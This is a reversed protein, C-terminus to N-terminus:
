KFILIYNKLFTVSNNFIYLTQIYYFVGGGCVCVRIQTAEVQWSLQFYVPNSSKLCNGAERNSISTGQPGYVALESVFVHEHELINKM